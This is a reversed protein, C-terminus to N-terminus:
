SKPSREASAKYERASIGVHKRFFRSFHSMDNFGWAFAIESVSRHAQAADTLAAKCRELRLLWIYRSVSVDDDAFLATLYRPSIGLAAAVLAPSLDERQINAAIFEKARILRVIRTSSAGEGLDLAAGGLTAAVLDVCMDAVRWRSAIRGIGHSGSMRRATLTELAGLRRRLPERPVKLVFHHFGTELRARYPRVSDFLALDDRELILQRGDQEALTRGRGQVVILCYEDRAAAIKAPSRTLDIQDSAMSSLQLGGFPQNRLGGSFRGRSPTACELHIFTECIVDRWFSFSERGAIGETSIRHSQM